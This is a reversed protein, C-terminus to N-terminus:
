VHLESLNGLKGWTECCQFGLDIHYWLETEVLLSEWNRTLGLSTPEIGPDPLDGPAPCPLESWYEQKPFGM